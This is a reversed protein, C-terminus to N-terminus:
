ELIKSGKKIFLIEFDFIMHVLGVWNKPFGMEMNM